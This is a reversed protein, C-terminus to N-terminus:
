AGPRRKEPSFISRFTGLMRQQGFAKAHTTLGSRPLQQIMSGEETVQRLDVLETMFNYYSLPNAFQLILERGTYRHRKSDEVDSLSNTFVAANLHVLGRQRQLTAEAEPNAKL